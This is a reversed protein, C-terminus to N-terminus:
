SHVQFPSYTYKDACGELLRSAGLSCNFCGPTVHKGTVRCLCDKNALVHWSGSVNSISCAGEQFLPLQLGAYASSGSEARCVYYTQLSWPTTEYLHHGAQVAATDEGGCVNPCLAGDLCSSTFSNQLLLITGFPVVM